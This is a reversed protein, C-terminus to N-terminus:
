NTPRGHLVKENGFKCRAYRQTLFMVVGIIAIGATVKAGIPPTFNVLAIVGGLFELGLVFLTILLPKSDM